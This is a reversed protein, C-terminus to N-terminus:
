FGGHEEGSWRRTLLTTGLPTLVHLVRSGTRLSCVLGASRLVSIHQSACAASVNLNRAVEGTTTGEGLSALVRARNRGLLDALAREHRARRNAIASASEHQVPYVLVPRLDDDALTV